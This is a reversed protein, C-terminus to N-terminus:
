VMGASGARANSMPPHSCSSCSEPGSLRSRRAPLIEEATKNTMPVRARAAPMAIKINELCGVGPVSSAASSIFFFGSSYVSEKLWKRSRVGCAMPAKRREKVPNETESNAPVAKFQSQRRRPSAAFPLQASAAIITATSADTCKAKTM